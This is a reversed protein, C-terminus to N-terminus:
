TSSGCLCEYLSVMRRATKEADFHDCVREYGAAGMRARGGPDEALRDLAHAFAVPDDPGVLLGTVGEEVLEATGGVHTTVVPLGTAMAELIAMPLNEARAPLAFVDANRMRERVDDVYGTFLADVGLRRAQAELNGREPGDGLIELRLPTGARAAAELLVDIGKRQELVAACVVVVPERSRHEARPGPEVGNPIVRLRARPFGHEVLFGALAESPVVVTGLYSLLAEIRLLGHMLWAERARSVGPPAAAHPNGIRAFIEDPLGHFTHVARRRRARAQVRILLGTRRDHTHVVDADALHRWAAAAGAVDLKHDLPVLAAGLGLARTREVSAPTSSLVTVDVGAAAVRPALELVHSLPGGRPVSVAYVVRM